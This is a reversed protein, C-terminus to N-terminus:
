LTKLFAELVSNVQPGGVLFFDNHGAGRVSFQTVPGLAARALRDSMAAPIIEDALGHGILIPCRVRALKRESEFRHRLLLNAPLFPYHERVVDAMRTFSSFIALGAVGERSALDIAVAGGLSWGAAVIKRPDIDTRKLLHAYAADATAYCGAESPRGDSMGYGVYDPIMVNAGLRRFAEFEELAARVHMGNGYFFLITPRNAADPRPNGDPTLAPGFLAKIGTGDRTELAVLSCGPSPRVVAEPQHQTHSGPFILRAQLTAFVAVVLVYLLLLSRVVRWAWHLRRRPRNQHVSGAATAPATQERPEIEM